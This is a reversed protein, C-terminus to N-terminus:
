SVVRPRYEPRPPRCSPSAITWDWGVAQSATDLSPTGLLAAAEAINGTTEFAVTAAWRQVSAPKIDQDHRLGARDLADALAVAAGAQRSAESGTRRVILGTDLPANSKKMQTVRRKLTAFEWEGPIAVKRPRTRTGGPLLVTGDDLDVDRLCISGIDGTGAGALALAVSAPLRSTPESGVSHRLIEAEVENLPRGSRTIETNGCVYPPHATALDLFRATRFCARIACSRLHRVSLGPSTPTGSRSAGASNLWLDYVDVAEDLTKHGHLAAFAFFAEVLQWYRTFTQRAMDGSFVDACWVEHILSKVTALDLAENSAVIAFVQRRDQLPLDFLVGQAPALAPHVQLPAM